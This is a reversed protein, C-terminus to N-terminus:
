IKEEEYMYDGWLDACMNFIINWNKDIKDSITEAESKSQSVLIIGIVVVPVDFKIKGNGPRIGISILTGSLSFTIQYKASMTSQKGDCDTTIDFPIQSYLFDTGQKIDLESERTDKFGYDTGFNETPFFREFFIKEFTKGNM